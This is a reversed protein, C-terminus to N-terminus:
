VRDGPAGPWHCIERITERAQRYQALFRDTDTAGCRIALHRQAAPDQPLLSVPKDDIRRLVAEIRRLFEYSAAARTAAESALLGREALQALAALTNAEWLGHRMQLAQTYFELEMLGGHGTKFAAFDNQGAREHVIRDHMAKIQGELDTTTAGVKSWAARAVALFAAQDPGAIPRAKTLAQAEWTQARRAFYAEYTSLSCALPGAEGEPRLRADVSFVAGEATVHTMTRMLEAAAANNTGLFVVDLDAGYALERGGFKGMAVITLADSLGLQQQAFIVSAEALATFESQLERLTALGLVDRLGIRLLQARRHIRLWEPWAVNEDNSGLSRLYDPVKRSDGLGGARAIEEILQPRRVAIETLFRSADFLRVLLELLRPNRLLTEFLLGRAGYREVFRVFATLATDPDGVRRLWDLLLPEVKRALKRTRVSFRASAASGDLDAILRQARAPDAFFSLDRAPTHPLDGPARLIKEFIARVAGTHDALTTQFASPNAIGLSRALRALTEPNDPLTHTQAENEIQLRHEVTRLFRYAAILAEMDGHPLIQLQRLARLAKLTNREQLFAHRAGHLLQLTQAIFEIERIGGYGLKVNRHLSSPGVIEQELRDKLAAMEEMIDISVSRPYIFPQLRQTFEYGLEAGGAVVRAKILAMREWTEGFAAYYHEIGDLSRVLPGSVGEPRLRLDIRFLTGSPHATSFTTVIKEALRSFFEQHTFRPNLHADEGYFFIVDIDSSYNLEEGGFKGMALVAFETQPKGWRRALEALWGEYTVQVCIEALRTLDLTTQEMSSWGGVERLAIRLMERQKWRRLVVFEADFAATEQRRQMLEFSERMKRGSRESRATRFLWALAEPDARLKEASVPSLALLHGLAEAAASDSALTEALAPLEAPWTESLKRLARRTREPDIQGLSFPEAFDSV